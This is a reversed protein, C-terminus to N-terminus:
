GPPPVLVIKRGAGDHKSDAFTFRYGARLLVWIELATWTPRSKGDKDYWLLSGKGQAKCLRFFEAADYTPTERFAQLVSEPIDAYPDGANLKIKFVAKASIGGEVWAVNLGPSWVPVDLLRAKKTSNQTGHSSVYNRNGIYLKLHGNKSRKVNKAAEFADPAKANVAQRNGLDAAQEKLPLYILEADKLKQTAAVMKDTIEEIAKRATDIESTSMQGKAISTQCKNYQWERQRLQGALAKLEEKCKNVDSEAPGINAAIRKARADERELIVDAIERDYLQWNGVTNCYSCQCQKLKYTQERSFYFETIRGCRGCKYTIM